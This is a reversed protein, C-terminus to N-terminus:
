CGAFSTTPPWAIDPCEHWIRRTSATTGPTPRLVNNENPDWFFCQLSSCSTGMHVYDAVVAGQETLGTGFYAGSLPAYLGFKSVTSSNLVLQVDCGTQPSPGNANAQCTTYPSTGYVYITLRSSSNLSNIYSSSSNVAFTGVMPNQATTRCSSGPRNPSDIWIAVNGPGGGNMELHSSTLLTFQCFYFNTTTGSAGAAFTVVDSANSPLFENNTDSCGYPSCNPNTGTYANSSAMSAWVSDPIPPATYTPYTYATNTPSCPPGCTSPSVNSCTVGCILSGATGGSTGGITNVDTRTETCGGSNTCSFTGSPSMSLGYCTSSPCGTGAFGSYGGFSANGNTAVTAKWSPGVNSSDTRFGNLALIGTVTFLPPSGATGADDVIQQVSRTVGNVTGEGTVCRETSLLVQGACYANYPGETTDVFAYKTGNGINASSDISNDDVCQNGTPNVVIITTVCQSVSPKLNDLRYIAVDVAAEASSLALKRYSDRLTLGSGHSAAVVGAGALTTLLFLIAVAVTM